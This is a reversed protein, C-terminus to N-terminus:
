KYILILVTISHKQVQMSRSQLTLFLFKPKVFAIYKKGWEQGVKSVEFLKRYPNM